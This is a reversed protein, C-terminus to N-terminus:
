QPPAKGIDQAGHESAKCDEAVNIWDLWAGAPNHDLLFNANNDIEFNSGELSAEYHSAFALPATLGVAAIVGVTLAVARTRRTRASAASRRSPTRARWSSGNIM